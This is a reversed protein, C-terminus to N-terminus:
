FPIALMAKPDNREWLDVRRPEQLERLGDRRAHVRGRWDRGEGRVEVRALARRLPERRQPERLGRAELYNLVTNLM